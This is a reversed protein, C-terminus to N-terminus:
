NEYLEVRFPGFAGAVAAALASERDLRGDTLV